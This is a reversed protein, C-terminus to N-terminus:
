RPVWIRDGQFQGSMDMHPAQHCVTGVHTRVHEVDRDTENREIRASPSKHKHIM